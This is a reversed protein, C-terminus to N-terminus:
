PLESVLLMNTFPTGASMPVTRTRFGLEMLLRQWERL